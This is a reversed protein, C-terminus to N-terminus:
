GAEVLRIGRDQDFLHLLVRLAEGRPTALTPDRALILRADDRAAALLDGHRDLRAVRFGPLGSQRTGLVEGGGRLRLDEEAIVFGDETARMIELRAKATEGLPGKYVLLCSSAETGRGVRGRLQHLQALGFREAHEIVMITADPVDVGVEIVTTAVLLRTDGEKFARMAADKEEAKMRGHVLGVVPGLVMTLEEFRAEAAALDSTESEEVLPSVWYIKQGNAIARALSEVIEGMRESSALRTAIPQRGAPKETLRSVDLDGFSSMMLTRPIPTATMVLLDTARGKSTLALRQHVGFRHQEDVVALALDAFEVPGQFLAHTGILIKVAGSALGELIAERERGKERGTLIAWPIGAAEALPAISRAHQRALLDTPAMIAAQGGAEVAMAAAMVAVLTKGSGVDGQLLRLMREPKALDARIDDIAAEQSGTPSFPLADRIKTTLVGTAFRPAKPLHKASARVLALTLQQALLEDYALRERAPDEATEDLPGEPHHLARLASGFDPFKRKALWDPDQWEPLHPLRDLAHRVTRAIAKSSLGETQPYVPEVLPLTAFEAETAVFDPHVMQPSRNFWEVRGSVWRTEGEPLLKTLWDARASFFVLTLDGTEDFAIVKYPARSGRPPARHEAVTVRITAIAGDVAEGIKPTHRRDIVSVPLHFLLDVIRAEVGAVPNAGELLRDYLVVTKPGVGPLGKLSAFLPTLIEPRM